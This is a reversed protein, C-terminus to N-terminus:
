KRSRFGDKALQLADPLAVGSQSMTEPPLNGIRAVIEDPPVTALTQCDIVSDLKHPRGDLWAARPFSSRAHFSETLRPLLFQPLSSLASAGQM